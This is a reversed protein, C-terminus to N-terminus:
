RLPSRRRRGSGRPRGTRKSPGPGAGLDGGGPEGARAGIECGGGHAREAAALEALLADLAAEGPLLLPTRAAPRESQHRSLRVYGEGDTALLSPGLAGLHIAYDVEEVLSGLTDNRDPQSV